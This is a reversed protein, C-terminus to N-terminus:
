YPISFIEKTLRIFDELSLMEGRINEPLDARQLAQRIDAKDRSLGKSLANLLTKRRMQFAAHVTQFFEPFAPVDKLELHVM